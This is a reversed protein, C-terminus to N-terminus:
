RAAQEFTKEKKVEAEIEISRAKIAPDLCRFSADSMRPNDSRM